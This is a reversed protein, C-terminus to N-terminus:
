MKGGRKYTNYADTGIQLLPKTELCALALFFWWGIIVVLIVPVDHKPIKMM